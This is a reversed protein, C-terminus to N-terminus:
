LTALAIMVVFAAAGFCVGAVVSDRLRMEAVAYASATTFIAVLVSWFVFWAPNM